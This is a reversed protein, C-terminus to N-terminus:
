QSWPLYIREGRREEPEKGIWDELEINYNFRSRIVTGRPLSAFWDAVGDEETLIVQTSYPIVYIGVWVLVGDRVGIGLNNDLISYDRIQTREASSLSDFIITSPLEEPDKSLIDIWVLENLPKPAFQIPADADKFIGRYTIESEEEHNIISTQLVAIINGGLIEITQDTSVQSGGVGKTRMQGIIPYKKM